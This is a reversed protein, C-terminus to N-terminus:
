HQPNPVSFLPRDWDKCVDIWKKNFTHLELQPLTLEISSSTSGCTFFSTVFRKLSVDLYVDTGELLVFPCIGSASHGIISELQSSPILQVTFDFEEQFATSDIETDGATVLVIARQDLLFATTKAMRAEACCLLQAKESTSTPSSTFSQITQDLGWDKFYAQVKKLSM